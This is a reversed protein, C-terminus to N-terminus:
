KIAPYKKFVSKIFARNEKWKILEDEELSKEFKKWRGLFGARCGVWFRDSTYTLIHGYVSISKVQLLNGIVNSLNAGSLNAGSLNAYSLNVYSMHAIGLNAGSLNAYSLNVHRLDTNVMDANSLNAHSLNAGRLDKNIFDAGILNYKHKEAQLKNM